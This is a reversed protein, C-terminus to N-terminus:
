PALRVMCTIEEDMNINMTQHPSGDPLGKLGLGEFGYFMMMPVSSVLSCCCIYLM